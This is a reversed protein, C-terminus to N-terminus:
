DKVRAFAPSPFSFHIIRLDRDPIFSNGYYITLWKSALSVDPAGLNM